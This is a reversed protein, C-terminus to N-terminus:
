LFRSVSAHRDDLYDGLEELSEGVHSDVDVVTMQDISVARGSDTTAM